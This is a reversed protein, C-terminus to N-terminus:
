WAASLVLLAVTEGLVGAAGLVDGTFGGIRRQSFAAVLGGTALCAGVALVAVARSRLEGGGAIALASALLTGVLAVPLPGGGLFATALGVNRAYPLTRAIVAMVTRSACWVAALLLPNPAIAVTLASLAAVRLVLVIAVTAVGFAGTTPDSMVALRRARDMPALLGDAADALGDIHLMGTVALDAAVVLAATVLPPWLGDAFWWVGGLIMGLLVGVIPFWDLSRPTPEEAGGFPTLFALARKV